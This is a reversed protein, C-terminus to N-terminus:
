RGGDDAWRAIEADEAAYRIMEPALASAIVALMEELILSARSKQPAAFDIRPLEAM